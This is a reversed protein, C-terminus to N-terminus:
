PQTEKVAPATAAPSTAPQTQAPTSGPQTAPSPLATEWGGGLAKYLAILSAALQEDSQALEDQATYLDRQSDLVSLFDVLGQGYLQNSLEVAEEDAKVAQALSAQRTRETSFTILEDRVEEIASQVSQQYSIMAQEQQATTVNVAARLRGAEFIPFTVAPGINFARSRWAWLDDISASQLDFFGTLSLKPYLEAEAVGIQATAAALRREASRIDPRRRLLDAPIGASVADPVGPIPGTERLFLLKDLPQNTLVCLRHIAQWEEREFIPIRAATDAVLAQARSVDLDNGVGNKERDRTLALTQNQVSLNHEAFIHEQQYGRLQVYNRGVEGLLSVLVAQRDIQAAEVTAGASELARRNGGFVDIEWSADFGMQYQNFEWPFGPINFANFPAANQSYRDRQYGADANLNPQDTGAIVGQQARAERIRAEAKQLDLNGAAAAALLGDLEPDHLSQWWATPVSQTESPTYSTEVPLNPKQYNPGVTCGAIVAALM